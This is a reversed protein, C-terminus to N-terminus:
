LVSMNDAPMFHCHLLFPSNSGCRTNHESLSVMWFATWGFIVLVWVINAWLLTPGDGRWWGYAREGGDPLTEGYLQFVYEKEAM